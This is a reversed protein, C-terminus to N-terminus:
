LFGPFLHKSSSLVEKENIENVKELVRDLAVSLLDELDEKEMTKLDAQIRVSRIKRNGNMSICVLGGGSEGEIELQELRAKSSESMKKLEELKAIMGPDFMPM